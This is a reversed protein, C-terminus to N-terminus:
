QFDQLAKSPMSTRVANLVGVLDIIEQGVARALPPLFVLASALMGLLNLAMRGIASQRAIRHLRKGIHLLKEVEGLTPELIVSGSAATTIDDSYKLHWAL